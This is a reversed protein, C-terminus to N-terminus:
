FDYDTDCVYVYASEELKSSSRREYNLDEVNSVIKRTFIVKSGVMFGALLGM